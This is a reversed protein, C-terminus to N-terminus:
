AKKKGEAQEYNKRYLTKPIHSENAEEWDEHYVNTERICGICYDGHVYGGTKGLGQISNDKLRQVPCEEM